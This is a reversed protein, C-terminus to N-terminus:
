GCPIRGRRPSNRRGSAPWSRRCTRRPSRRCRARRRPSRRRDALFTSGAAREIRDGDGDLRGVLLAVLPHEGAAVRRPEGIRLDLAATEAAAGPSPCASAPWTPRAASRRPASLSRRRAASRPSRHRDPVLDDGRELRGVAVFQWVSPGSASGPARRDRLQVHQLIVYELVAIAVLALGPQISNLQPDGAGVVGVLDVIEVSSM